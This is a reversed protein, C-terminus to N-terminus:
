RATVCAEMLRAGQEIVQERTVPSQPDLWALVMEALGGTVFHGAVRLEDPGIEPDLPRAAVVDAFGRNASRRRAVLEPCGVADSVVVARRPDQGINDVMATTMARFRVMPPADATEAAAALMAAAREDVVTDFVECALDAATPFEEAASAPLGAAAAAARPDVAVWGGDAWQQLAADLLAERDREARDM